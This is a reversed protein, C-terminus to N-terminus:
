HRFRACAMAFMQSAPQSAVRHVRDPGDRTSASFSNRSARLVEQMKSGEHTLLYSAFGVPEVDSTPTRWYQGISEIERLTGQPRASPYVHRDSTAPTGISLTCHM